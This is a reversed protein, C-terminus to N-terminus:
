LTKLFAILARKEDASLDLGYEHGKIARTADFVLEGARIWDQDTRLAPRKGKDDWLVQPEQARLMDLYGSPERAPHYVPYTKYIPHVPIRYCYESSVHRPSAAPVSLPVELTAMAADDWTKPISRNASGGAPAQSTAVSTLGVALFAAAVMSGQTARVQSGTM